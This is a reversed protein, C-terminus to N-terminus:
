LPTRKEHMVKPGEADGEAIVEEVASAAVRFNFLRACQERLCLKTEGPGRVFQGHCDFGGVVFYFLQLAHDCDCFLRQAHSSLGGAQCITLRLLISKKGGGAFLGM